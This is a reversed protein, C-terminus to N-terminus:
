VFNLTKKTILSANKYKIKKSNPITLYKGLM